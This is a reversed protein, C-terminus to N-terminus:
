KKIRKMEGDKTILVAENFIFSGSNSLYDMQELIVRRADKDSLESLRNDIVMRPAGLKGVDFGSPVRASDSSLREWKSYGEEILKVLSWEDKRPTKLEWYEFGDPFRWMFDINASASQDENLLRHSVGNDSLFEYGGWEDPKDRKLRKLKKKSLDSVDVPPVKGTYLWRWDRTEVERMAKANVFRRYREADSDGKYRAREKKSMSRWEDRFDSDGGAAAQCKHWRDLMSDPDYGEVQKDAPLGGFGPVIVCDCNRHYAHASGATAESRYVFGRSSLMFCFACTERGSPVRAYRLDNRDCNRVMNEMASRKIYYRSLDAVDRAFADTDGEVLQRASYRVGGEIMDPDIADEIVTEADLGHGDVVIEDFLGLALSSAQDGFAYLSSDIAEVAEDRLEAVSMGPNNAMMAHMFEDVFSYAADGIADLDERYRSLRAQTVAM